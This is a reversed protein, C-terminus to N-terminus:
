VTPIKDKKIFIFSTHLFSIFKEYESLEDFKHLFRQKLELQPNYNPKNESVSQKEALLKGYLDEFSNPSGIDFFKTKFAANKDIKLPILDFKACVEKLKRMDVLYENSEFKDKDARTYEKARDTNNVDSGWTLTYRRTIEGKDGLKFKINRTKYKKFENINDIIKRGDLCTGIFLGGPILHESINRIGNNLMEESKFFYHMTFQCSAIDFYKQIPITVTPDTITGKTLELTRVNSGNKQSKIRSRANEIDPLYPDIGAVIEIEAKNWKDFDGGRGVSVDLLSINEINEQRLHKAAGYILRRKVLNHFNRLNMYDTKSKLNDRSTNM